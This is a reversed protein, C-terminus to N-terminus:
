FIMTRVDFKCSGECSCGRGEGLVAPPFNQCSSSDMKKIVSGCFFSKSEIIEMILQHKM